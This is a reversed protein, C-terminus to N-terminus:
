KYISIIPVIGNSHFSFPRVKFLVTYPTHDVM